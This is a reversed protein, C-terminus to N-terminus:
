AEDGQIAGPIDRIRIEVFFSAGAASEIHVEGDLMEIRQQLGFFGLGSEGTAKEIVKPDFGKGHDRVSVIIQTDERRVRITAEGVGAHKVVNFLLERIARLLIGELHQCVPEAGPALDLAINLGFKVKMDRHLAYLAAKFDGAAIVQPIL